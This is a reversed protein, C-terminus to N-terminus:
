LRRNQTIVPTTNYELQSRQMMSVAYRAADIAHNYGDIPKNIYNGEKDKAYTYNRLERILNLSQKTVKLKYQRMVDLGWLISDAGKVAPHIDWGMLHLDDISKPEASDAYITDYRDVGAVKIRNSIEVNRLGTEYVLEHLYLTDDHIVTQIVATPDNTYGFDLGISMRGGEPVHDVMDFSQFILGEVQGILGEGYVRWWMVNNRNREIEKVQAEALFPNDKYTSHIWVSDADETLEKHTWFEHTPNFDIFVTGSTRVLLHRAIEHPINQAENLFLIDRQPGHVKSTSDASFFEIKAGNDYQYTSDTKNWSNPNWANCQQMLSEYDRIAGKRLHPFTESVVSILINPRRYAIRHLLTLIAFTKGSRTGGSNIVYRKGENFAKASKGIISLQSM